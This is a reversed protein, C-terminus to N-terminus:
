PQNLLDHSAYTATLHNSCCKKWPLDLQFLDPAASWKTRNPWTRYWQRWRKFEPTCLEVRPQPLQPSNRYQGLDIHVGLYTIWNNIICLTEQILPINIFLSTFAMLFTCLDAKINSYAVIQKPRVRVRCIPNSCISLRQLGPTMKRKPISVSLPKGRMLQQFSVDSCVSEFGGECRKCVRKKKGWM